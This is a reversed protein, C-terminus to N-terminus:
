LTAELDRLQDIRQQLRTTDWPPGELAFKDKTAELAGIRQRVEEKQDANLEPVTKDRLFPPGTLDVIETTPDGVVGLGADLVDEGPGPTPPSADDLIQSSVITGEPVWPPLKYVIFTTDPM